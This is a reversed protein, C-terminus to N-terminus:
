LAVLAAVAVSLWLCRRVDRETRVSARTVLYIGLYKWPILAYLIDDQEIRLGRATMWALPIISAAAAMALISWGIKDLRPWRLSGSRAGLVSRTLVGAAAVALLAESPRLVPIVAGRDIGATLPTLGILLYAALLPRAAIAAVLVCGVVGAVLLKPDVFPIAAGLLAGIVLLGLLVVAPTRAPGRRASAVIDGLSPTGLASSRAPSM